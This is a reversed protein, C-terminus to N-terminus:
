SIFSSSVQPNVCLRGITDLPLWRLAAYNFIPRQWLTYPYFRKFSRGYPPHFRSKAGGEPPVAARGARVGQATRAFAQQLRQVVRPRQGAEHGVGRPGVDLTRLPVHQPVVPGEAYLDSQWAQHSCAFNDTQSECYCPSAHNMVVYHYKYQHVLLVGPKSGGLFHSMAIHSFLKYRQVLPLRQLFQKVRSFSKYVTASRTQHTLKCGEVCHSGEVTTKRSWARDQACERTPTARRVLGQRLFRLRRWMSTRNTTSECLGWTM